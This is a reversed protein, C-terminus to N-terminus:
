LAPDGESILSYADKSPAANSPLTKRHREWARNIWSSFFRGFVKPAKQPNALIWAHAKTIEELVFSADGGCLSLWANQLDTPVTTLKALQVETLGGKVITFPYAVPHEKPAATRKTGHPTIKEILRDAYALSIETVDDPNPYFWTGDERRMTANGVIAAMVQTAIKVRDAM